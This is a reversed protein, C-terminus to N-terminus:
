GIGDGGPKLSTHISTAKKASRHTRHYVSIASEAARCSLLFSVLAAFVEDEISASESNARVVLHKVLTHTVSSGGGKISRRLKTNDTKIASEIRKINKPLHIEKRFSAGANEKDLVMNIFSPVFLSIGIDGASLLPVDESVEEGRAALLAEEANQSYEEIFVSIVIKEGFAYFFPTEIEFYSKASPYPLAAVGGILEAFIHHLPLEDGTDTDPLAAGGNACAADAEGAALAEESVEFFDNDLGLSTNDFLEEGVRGNGFDDDYIGM